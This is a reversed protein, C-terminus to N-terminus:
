KKAIRDMLREMWTVKDRYMIVNWYYDEMKYFGVVQKNAILVKRIATLVETAECCGDPLEALVENLIDNKSRSKEVQDQVVLKGNAVRITKKTPDKWLKKCDDIEDRSYNYNYMPDLTGKSMYTICGKPDTVDKFSWDQRPINECEKRIINKLTERSCKVETILFHVHTRSVENDQEHEYLVLKECQVEFLPMCRILDQFERSVRVFLNM